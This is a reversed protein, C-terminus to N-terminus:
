EEESNVITIPPCNEEYFVSIFDVVNRSCHRVFRFSASVIMWGFSVIPAFATGTQIAGEAIASGLKLKVSASIMLFAVTIGAVISSGWMVFPKVDNWTTDSIWAAMWNWGDKIVGGLWMFIDGIGFFVWVLFSWVPPAAYYTGAVLGIALAVYLLNLGIKFAVSSAHALKAFFARNRAQRAREKASQVLYREHLTTYLEKAEHKGIQIFRHSHNKWFHDWTQSGCSERIQERMYFIESRRYEAPTPTREEETEKKEPWCAKVLSMFALSVAGGIPSLAHGVGTFIAGIILFVVKVLM